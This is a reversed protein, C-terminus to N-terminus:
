ESQAITTAQTNGLVATRIQENVPELLKLFPKPYLGIWFAFIVLSLMLAIERPRLPMLTENAPNRVPGFFVRQVMILLYVAGLIVGTAGIVAYIASPGAVYAAKWSGLLILFEGIFGNLGPLGASSLVIIITLFAFNRMYPYLGGYESMLRTHRREYLIGVALFLGGTSIGHNVMQLAAGQMSEMTLAFIGLVVFGMHSVSSYAVLRKMDKQAMATLAGYIIAVVSLWCIAPALAEVAQPFFPLCFRLMGYVGTKLLVGALLISGATPAETHADPLWTHFPFLPAKIAFALFMSMFLWMQLSKSLLPAQRALEVADFTSVGTQAAVQFHLTLIGILMLVSGALTFLVFKMTAYIRNSSGFIGILFYLPILMIEWFIYFLFLDLSLFTGMVGTQLLLLFVYYETQRETIASFSAAIALIGLGSTLLVLLLSLGDMGVHYNISLAPLWAVMESFRYGGEGAPASGFDMLCKLAVLADAVAIGFATWRIGDGSMRRGAVALYLAGALPLFILVSLIPM